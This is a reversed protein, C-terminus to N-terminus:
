EMVIAMEFDACKIVTDADTAFNKTSYVVDFRNKCYASIVGGKTMRWDANECSFCPSDKVEPPVSDQFITTVIEQRKM